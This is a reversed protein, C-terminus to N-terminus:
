LMKVGFRDVVETLQQVIERLRPEDLLELL